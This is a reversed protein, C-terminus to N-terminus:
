IELTSVEKWVPPTAAYDGSTVCQWAFPTGANADRHYIIDGKIWSGTTPLADRFNGGRLRIRGNWLNNRIDSTSDITTYNGDNSPDIFFLTLNSNTDTPSYLRNNDIIIGSASSNYSRIYAFIDTKSRFINNSVEVDNSNTLVRIPYSVSNEFEINNSTVLINEGRIGFTASTTNTPSAINRFMNNSIMGGDVYHDGSGELFVESDYFVNNTMTFNYYREVYTADSGNLSVSTYCNNAVNGIITINYVSVAPTCGIFNQSDRATCNSIILNNGAQIKICRTDIGKFKCNDIVVDKVESASSLLQIGDADNPGSDHAVQLTGIDEFRCNSITVRECGSIEGGIYIGDYNYTEAAGKGLGIDKFVCNEIDIDMSNQINLGTGLTESVILDRLLVDNCGTITVSNFNPHNEASGTNFSGRNGTIKLDRITVGNVNTVTFHSIQLNDGVTLEADRGNINIENTITLGSNILLSEGNLILTKNDTLAAADILAQLESSMDTAGTDDLDFWRSQFAKSWTGAFSGSGDFCVNDSIIATDTGTITGYNNFSGGNFRIAIGSPFTVNAGGLDMYTSIEVIGNQYLSINSFDFNDPLLFVRSGSTVPIAM